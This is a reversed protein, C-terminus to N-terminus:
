GCDMTSVVTQGPSSVVARKKITLMAELISGEMPGLSYAKVRWRTTEGLERTSEVMVGNTFGLAKSIITWLSVTTSVKIEGFLIVRATSRGM